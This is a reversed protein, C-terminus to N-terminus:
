LFDTTDDLGVTLVSNLGGYPNSSRRVALPDDAWAGDVMFRYEYQGSKLMLCTAWEGSGKHELPNDEPRWGNFTGAVQVVKATPASFTLAIEREEQSPFRQSIPQIPQM